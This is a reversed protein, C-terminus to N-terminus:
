GHRAECASLARAASRHRAGLHKRALAATLLQYVHCSRSATAAEGSTLNITVVTGLLEIPPAYPGFFEEGVYGTDADVVEGFFKAAHPERGPRSPNNPTFTGSSTLVFPYSPTQAGSAPVSGGENLYFVSHILGRTSAGSSSIQLGGSKMGVGGARVIATTLAEAESVKAQAAVASAGLSLLAFTLTVTILRALRRM